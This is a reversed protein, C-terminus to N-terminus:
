KAASLYSDFVRVKGWLDKNENIFAQHRPHDQYTDHSAKSDFVLHLAVDFDRDNVERALDDALTGVSFYLTGSHGDLYKQCAAVLKARNAPTDENLTFFVMHALPPGASAPASRSHPSALFAIALTPVFALLALMLSRKM